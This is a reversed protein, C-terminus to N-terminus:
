AHVLSSRYRQRVASPSENRHLLPTKPPRRTPFLTRPCRRPKLHFRGTSPVRLQTSGSKQKCTNPLFLSPATASGYTRRRSTITSCRPRPHAVPLSSLGLATAHNLTLDGVQRCGSSPEVQNKSAPTLCPRPLLRLATTCGVVVRKAPAVPDQTPSPYSLSDSPLPSTQPSIAGKVAGQAPNFRIETKCTNPVSSPPATASGYPRRRSTKTSCRPRPHAAPLFSLGLATVLNSIFDGGQRCGSSLEVQNKSAPTLCPCLSLRVAAM